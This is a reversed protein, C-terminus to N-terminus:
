KPTVKAKVFDATWHWFFLFAIFDNENLNIFVTSTLRNILSVHSCEIHNSPFKRGQKRSPAQILSPPIGLMLFRKVELTLLTSKPPIALSILFNLIAGPPFFFDLLIFFLFFIAWLGYSFFFSSLSTSLLPHSLWFLSGIVFIGLHCFFFVRFPVM